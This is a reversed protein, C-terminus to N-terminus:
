TELMAESLVSADGGADLHRAREAQLKPLLRDIEDFSLDGSDFGLAEDFVDRREAADAFAQLLDARM